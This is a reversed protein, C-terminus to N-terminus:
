NEVEPFESIPRYSDYEVEYHSRSSNKHYACRLTMLNQHKPYNGGYTIETVNVFYKAKRECLECIKEMSTM